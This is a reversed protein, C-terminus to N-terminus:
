LPVWQDRNFNWSYTIVKSACDRCVDKGIVHSEVHEACVVGHNPCEYKRGRLYGARKVENCTRCIFDSRAM